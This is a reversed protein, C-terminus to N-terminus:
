PCCVTQVNQLTVNPTSTGAVTCTSTPTGPTWRYSGIHAGSSVAGCAGMDITVLLTQCDNDGFFSLSGACTENVV